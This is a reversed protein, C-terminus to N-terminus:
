QLPERFALVVWLHADKFSLEALGDFVRILDRGVFQRLVYLVLVTTGAREQATEPSVEVAVLWDVFRLV